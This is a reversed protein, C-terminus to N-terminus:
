AFGAFKVDRRGNNWMQPVVRANPNPNPNREPSLHTVCLCV